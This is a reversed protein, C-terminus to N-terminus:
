RAGATDRDGGYLIHAAPPTSPLNVIDAPRLPANQGTAVRLLVLLPILRPVIM